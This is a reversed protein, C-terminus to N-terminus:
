RTRLNLSTRVYSEVGPIPRGKRLAVMEQWASKSIRRELLHYAGEKKIFRFTKTWDTANPVETESISATALEGKAGELGAKKLAEIAVDELDKYKANLDKVQSELERKEERVQHMEDLMEGITAM